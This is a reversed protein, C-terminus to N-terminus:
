TSRAVSSRTAPPTTAPSASARRRLVAQGRGHQVTVDVTKKEPDPKRDTLVTWQFYGLSGYADRLKDYAKKFQKEEYVDGPQM